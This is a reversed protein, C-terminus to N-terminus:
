DLRYTATTLTGGSRDDVVIEAASHTRALRYAVGIAEARSWVSAEVHVTRLNGATVAISAMLTGGQMPVVLVTVRRFSTDPLPPNPEGRPKM